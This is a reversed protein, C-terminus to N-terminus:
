NSYSKIKAKTEAIYSKYFLASRKAPASKMRIMEDVFEQGYKATMWLTYVAEKNGYQMGWGNCAGCQPHINRQDLAWYSSGGKSIFHGGQMGKNWPMVAGCTVCECNGDSDARSIRALKQALELAEARPTKRIRRLDERHKKRKEKEETATKKKVAAKGAKAAFEVAHDYSCFFSLNVQVGETIETRKKCQKCARLKAKMRVGTAAIVACIHTVQQDQQAKLASLTRAYAFIISVSLTEPSSSRLTAIFSKTYSAFVAFSLM